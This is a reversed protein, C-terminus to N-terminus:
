FILHTTDENDFQLNETITVYSTSIALDAPSTFRDSKNKVPDLQWLGRDAESQLQSCITGGDTSDDEDDGFLGTLMRAPFRLLTSEKYARRGVQPMLHDIYARNIERWDYDNLPLSACEFKRIRRVMIQRKEYVYLSLPVIRVYPPMAEIILARNELM